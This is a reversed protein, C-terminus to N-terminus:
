GRLMMGPLVMMQDKRLQLRMKSKDLVHPENALNQIMFTILVSTTGHAGIVLGMANDVIDELPLSHSGQSRLNLMYTIFDTNSTDHSSVGGQLLSVERRRFIETITKRIRASADMGKSFRTFPLRVPFSMVAKGLAEFDKSLTDRVLAADDGFVVACIIGFSLNRALPLVTVRRRGAWNVHIHRRVEGDMQCVYRRVMEPRLYGQLAGRVQRLEDGTFTLVSRGVLARLARTQTLVLGGGGGGFVFRNAAPGALLVTPSGLVSIKSVPGYRNVRARFWQDDTNRRLADLLSLTHGVIPVGLEGPPLNYSSHYRRRREILYTIIAPILLPLLLAAVLTSFAM